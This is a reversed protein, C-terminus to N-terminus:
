TARVLGPTDTSDQWPCPVAVSATVPSCATPVLPLHQAREPRESDPFGTPPWSPTVPLPQVDLSSGPPAQTPTMLMSPSPLACLTIQPPLPILCVAAWPPSLFRALPHPHQASITRSSPWSFTCLATLLTVAAVGSLDPAFSWLGSGLTGELPPQNGLPYPKLSILPSFGPQPPLLSWSM